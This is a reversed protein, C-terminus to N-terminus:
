ASSPMRSTSLDRPSPSTYLLCTTIIMFLLNKEQGKREIEEIINIANWYDSSLMKKICESNNYISPWNTVRTYSILADYFNESMSDHKKDYCLPGRSVHCLSNLSSDLYKSYDFLSVQDLGPPCSPGGYGCQCPISLFIEKEDRKITYKCFGDAPCSNNKNEKLTPRVSCNGEYMYFSKCAAPALAPKGNAISGYLTCTKNHCFSAVECRSSEDCEKGIQITEKCKNLSCYLGPNCDSDHKCDDDANKGACKNNNCEGSLCESKKECYEGPYSTAITPNALCESVDDIHPIECIKKEGECPKLWYYLGDRTQLSKACQQDSLSSDCIYKPCNMEMMNIKIAIVMLTMAGISDRICM